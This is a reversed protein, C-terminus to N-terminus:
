ITLRQKMYEKAPIGIFHSTDIGFKNITHSVERFNKNTHELELKTLLESKSHVTPVVQILINHNM